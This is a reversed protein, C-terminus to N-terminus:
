RASGDDPPPAGLELLEMAHNSRAGDASPGRLLMAMAGPLGHSVVWERTFEDWDSVPTPRVGPHVGYSFHLQRAVQESPTVAAIWVPVRFRAISRAMRGTVEETTLTFSPGVALEVPEDAIVGLRINPGPLDALIAVDRGAARAAARLNEIHRRHDDLGGRSFNLRAVDMGARILDEMVAASASAPGVRATIKTKHSRLQM